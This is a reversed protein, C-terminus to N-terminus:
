IGCLAVFVHKLYKWGGGGFARGVEIRMIGKCCCLHHVRRFSSSRFFFFTAFSIIITANSGLSNINIFCLSISITRKKWEPKPAKRSASEFSYAGACYNM